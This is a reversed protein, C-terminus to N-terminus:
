RHLKLKGTTQRADVRRGLTGHNEADILIEQSFEGGPTLPAGEIDINGCVHNFVSEVLNGHAPRYGFEGTLSRIFLYRVIQGQSNHRFEVAAETFNLCQHGAVPARHFRLSREHVPFESFYFCLSRHAFFSITKPRSFSASHLRYHRDRFALMDSGSRLTMM